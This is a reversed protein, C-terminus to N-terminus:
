SMQNTTPGYIGGTYSLFDTFVVFGMGVSGGAWLQRKVLALPNKRVLGVTGFGFTADIDGTGQMVGVANSGFYRDAKLSRPFRGTNTCTSSCRPTGQAQDFHALAGSDPVPEPYCTKGDARDAYDGGSVIGNKWVELFGM